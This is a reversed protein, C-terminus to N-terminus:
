LERQPLLEVEWLDIRKRGKDNKFLDATLFVQVIRRHVEETILRSNLFLIRQIHLRKLAYMVERATGAGSHGWPLTVVLDCGLLTQHDRACYNGIEGGGVWITTARPDQAWLPHDGLAEAESLWPSHAFVAGGRDLYVETFRRPVGGGAGTSIEAYGCRLLFEAAVAMEAMVEPTFDIEHSCGLIAARKPAAEPGPDSVQVM